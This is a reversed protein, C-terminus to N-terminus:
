NSSDEDKYKFHNLYTEEDPLETLSFTVDFDYYEVRFSNTSFDITYFGECRDQAEKDSVFRVFRVEGKLILKHLESGCDRSLYPYNKVWNSDSNVIDIEEQTIERLKELETQYKELDNNRLFRLIGLGQGDPYGDWQGYQSVKRTGEKNIVVQQHRTGM